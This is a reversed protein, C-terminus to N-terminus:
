IWQSRLYLTTCDVTSLHISLIATECAFIETNFARWDDFFMALRRSLMSPQKWKIVFVESRSETFLNHFSKPMNIDNWNHSIEKRGEVIIIYSIWIVENKFIHCYSKLHEPLTFLILNLKRQVNWINGYIMIIKIHNRLYEIGNWKIIIIMLYSQFSNIIVRLTIL